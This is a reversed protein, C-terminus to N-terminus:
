GSHNERLSTTRKDSRIIKSIKLSKRMVSKFASSTSSAPPPPTIREICNNQQYVVECAERLIDLICVLLEHADHQQNGEFIPNM